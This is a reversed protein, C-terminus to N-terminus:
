TRDVIGQQCAKGEPASGRNFDIEGTYEAVLDTSDRLDVYGYAQGGEVMDGLPVTISFEDGGTFGKADWSCGNDICAVLTYTTGVELDSADFKATLSSDCAAASCSAMMAAMLVAVSARQRTRM